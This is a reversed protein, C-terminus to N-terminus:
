LGIGIRHYEGTPTNSGRGEEREEEKRGKQTGVVGPGENQFGCAVGQEGDSEGRGHDGSQHDGDKLAAEEAHGAHERLHEGVCDKTALGHSTDSDIEESSNSAHELDRPM